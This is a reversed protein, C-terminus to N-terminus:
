DDTPWNGYLAEHYMGNAHWHVVNSAFGKTLCREGDPAMWEAVLCWGTLVAGDRKALESGSQIANHVADRFPDSDDSM